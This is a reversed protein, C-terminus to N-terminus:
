TLERAGIQLLRVLVMNESSMKLCLWVALCPLYFAFLIKDWKSFKSIRYYCDVSRKWATSTLCLNTTIFSTNIGPRPQKPFIEHNNRTNLPNVPHPEADRFSHAQRDTQRDGYIKELGRM